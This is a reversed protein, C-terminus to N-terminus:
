QREGVVVSRTARFEGTEMRVFYVGRDAARGTSTLGDWALVHSGAPWVRDTLMRVNRGAVDYIGIRTRASQPLEFRLSTEDRLPNPSPLAFAIRTPLGTESETDAPNFVALVTIDDVAAEVVSGYAIDTAIFRLEVHGLPQGFLARLDTRVVEWANSSLLTREVDVWPGGENRVQAVWEDSDAGAGANNSFWRSYKLIATTAGALQWGPSTLSTAGGDVDNEAPVGGPTGNGTVFCHTGPTPTHDDEPQAATYIPDLREWIGFTATDTGDANVLWGGPIEFDEHFTAM